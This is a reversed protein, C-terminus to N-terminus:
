IAPMLVFLFNGFCVFILDFCVFNELASAPKSKGPRPPPASSPSFAAMSIAKAGTFKKGFDVLM